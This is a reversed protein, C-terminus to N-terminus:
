VQPELITRFKKAQSDCAGELTLLEFDRIQECM